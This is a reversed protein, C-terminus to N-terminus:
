KVGGEDDEADVFIKVIVTLLVVGGVCLLVILPDIRIM